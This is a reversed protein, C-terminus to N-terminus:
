KKIIITIMERSFYGDCIFITGCLEAFELLYNLFRVLLQFIVMYREQSIHRLMFKLLQAKVVAYHGGM